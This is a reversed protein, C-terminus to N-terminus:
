HIGDLLGNPCNSLEAVRCTVWGWPSARLAKQELQSYSTVTIAPPDILESSLAVATPLGAPSPELGEYM